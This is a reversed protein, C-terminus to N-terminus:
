YLNLHISLILLHVSSLSRLSKKRWTPSSPSLGWQDNPVTLYRRSLVYKINSLSLLRSISSSRTHVRTHSLTTNLFESTQSTFPTNSVSDAVNSRSAGNRAGGPHVPGPHLVLTETSAVLLCLGVAVAKVAVVTM